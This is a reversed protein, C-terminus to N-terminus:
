FLYIIFILLSKGPLGNALVEGELTPPKPEIRIRPALIGCAQRGFFRFM